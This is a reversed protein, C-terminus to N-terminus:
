NRFHLLQTSILTSLQKQSFSCKQDNSIKQNNNKENLKKMKWRVKSCILSQFPQLLKSCILLSNVFNNVKKILM